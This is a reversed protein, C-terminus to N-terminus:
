LNDSSDLTFNKVAWANNPNEKSSTLVFQVNNGTTSASNTLHVKFNPERVTVTWTLSTIAEGNKKTLYVGFVYTGAIDLSTADIRIRSYSPAKGPYEPAIDIAYTNDSQSTVGDKSFVLSVKPTKPTAGAPMSILAATVSVTDNASTGFFQNTVAATATEYKAVTVAAQDITLSPGLIAASAPAISFVCLPAILVALIIQVIRHRIEGYREQFAM